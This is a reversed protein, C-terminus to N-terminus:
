SAWECYGVLGEHIEPESEWNDEREEEKDEHFELVTLFFGFGFPEVLFRGRPGPFCGMMPLICWSPPGFGCRTGLLNALFYPRNICSLIPSTEVIMNM